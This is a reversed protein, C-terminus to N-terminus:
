QFIGWYYIAFRLCQINKLKKFTGKTSKSFITRQEKKLFLVVVTTAYRIDSFSVQSMYTLYKIYINRLIDCLTIYITVLYLISYLIFCWILYKIWMSKEENNVNTSVLKPLTKVSRKLFNYGGRYDWLFRM